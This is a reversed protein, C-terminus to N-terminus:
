PYVTSYDFCPLPTSAANGMPLTAGGRIYWMGTSPRYVTVESAGDGNYDAPV